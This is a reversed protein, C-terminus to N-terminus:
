DWKLPEPSSGPTLPKPPPLPEIREIRCVMGIKMDEKNGAVVRAKSMKDMIEVIEIEGVPTEEYGLKRKTDPDIIEKGLAYVGLLTGIKYGSDIGRNIYVYNSDIHSIKAPYAGDILFAVAREATERLVSDLFGEPSFTQLNFQSSSVKKTDLNRAVVVKGNGVNIMRVLLGVEGIFESKVFSSYPIPTDVREFYLKTVEGVICYDASGFGSTTISEGRVIESFIRERNIDGLRDREMVDFKKTNALVTMFMKTFNKTKEPGWTINEFGQRLAVVSPPIEFDLVAVKYITESWSVSLYGSIVSVLLFIKEGRRKM